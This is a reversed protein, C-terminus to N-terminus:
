KSQKISNLLLDISELNSLIWKERPEWDAIEWFYDNPKINHIARYNGLLEKFVLAEEPTIITNVLCIHLLTCLGACPSFCDKSQLLKEIASKQLLLLIQKTIM